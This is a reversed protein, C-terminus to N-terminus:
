KFTVARSTVGGLSSRVTINQPNVPWAFQGTYKGNGINKLQGLLAGSSTVYVKLTATAITDTADVRVSNKSQLFEARQVTLKEAPGVSLVATRTLGNFAASITVSGTSTVQSTTITFTTSVSGAAVTVSPSVQAMGSNSSALTILAGGAPAAGSLTVTGQTSTGGAVSTPNLTVSSLTALAVPTPTPTPTPTPESAGIKVVFADDHHEIGGANQTQFAGSTIPFDYSSTLGTIYASDNGDLAIGRGEDSLNGGLYTSYVLATGTPNLKSLFADSLGGGYSGQLANAVPFNNSNQSNARTDGTIYANGAIDITIGWAREVGGTGGLYTSYM